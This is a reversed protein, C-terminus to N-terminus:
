KHKWYNLVKAKMDPPLKLHFLKRGIEDDPEEQKPLPPLQSSSIEQDQEMMASQSTTPRESNNLVHVPIDVLDEVFNNLLFLWYM